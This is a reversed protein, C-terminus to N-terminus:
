EQLQIICKDIERILTNIKLKTDKTNTGSGEITKAIKLLNFDKKQEVLQQRSELVQHQLETSSRLLIQNENKLFEYNSLLNKLKDELLHIAELTNSM